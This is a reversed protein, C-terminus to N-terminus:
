LRAVLQVRFCEYCRELLTQGSVASVPTHVGGAQRTEERSALLALSTQVCTIATVLYPDRDADLRTVVRELPSEEVAGKMPYLSLVGYVSYSVPKQMSPGQGSSTVNRLLPAMLRIVYPAVKMGFHMGYAAVRNPMVFAFGVELRGARYEPNIEQSTRIVYADPMLETTCIALPGGLKKDVENVLSVGQKIRAQPIVVTPIPQPAKGTSVTSEMWGLLTKLTGNSIGNGQMKACTLLAAHSNALEDPPFQSLTFWASLDSPVSDNGALPVLIAGSRVAVDQYKDRMRQVWAGEGTIDVYDVGLSACAKFVPEGFDEYPGVCTLVCKTSACMQYISKEDQVDAHFIIPKLHQCYKTVLETV